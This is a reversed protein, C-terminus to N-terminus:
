ADARDLLRNCLKLPPGMEATLGVGARLQDAVPSRAFAARTLVMNWDARWQALPVNFSVAGLTVDFTDRATDTVWTLEIRSNPPFPQWDTPVVYVGEGVRVCIKSRDNTQLWIQQSRVGDLAPGRVAHADSM